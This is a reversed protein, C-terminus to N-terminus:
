CIFDDRRTFHHNNSKAFPSEGIKQRTYAITKIGLTWIETLMLVHPDDTHPHTCSTPSLLPFFYLCSNGHKFPSLFLTASLFAFSSRYTDMRWHSFSSLTFNDGVLLSFRFLWQAYLSAFRIFLFLFVKYSHQWKLIQACCSVTTPRSIPIRVRKYANMAWYGPPYLFLLSPLPDLSFFCTSM